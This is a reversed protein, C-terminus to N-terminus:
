SSWQMTFVVDGQVCVTVCVCVEDKPLLAQLQRMLVSNDTEMDALKRTAEQYVEQTERLKDMLKEREQLSLYPFHKKVVGVVFEFWRKCALLVPNGM